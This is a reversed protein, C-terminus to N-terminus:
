RAPAPTPPGLEARITTIAARVRDWLRGIAGALGQDPWTRDFAVQALHEVEAITTTITAGAAQRAAIETAARWVKLATSLREAADTLQKTAAMAPDSVSAPITGGKYGAILVDQAEVVIAMIGSADHAVKAPTTNPDVKGCAPVLAIV